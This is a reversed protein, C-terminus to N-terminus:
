HGLAARVRSERLTRLGSYVGLIGLPFAVLGAVLALWAGIQRTGPRGLLGGAAVLAIGNIMTAAAWPWTMFVGCYLWCLIAADPEVIRPAPPKPWWVLCYLGCVVIFLGAVVPLGVLVLREPLPRWRTLARRETAGSQWRQLIWLAVFPAAIVLLQSTTAFLWWPTGVAHAFQSLPEGTEM